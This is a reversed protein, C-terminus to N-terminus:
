GNTTDDTLGRKERENAIWKNVAKLCDIPSKIAGVADVLSHAYSEGTEFRFSRDDTACAPPQAFFSRDIIVEAAPPVVTVDRTVVEM